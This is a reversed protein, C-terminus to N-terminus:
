VSVGIKLERYVNQRSISVLWNIEAHRQSANVATGKSTRLGKILRRPQSSKSNNSPFTRKAARLLDFQEQPLIITCFSSSTGCYIYFHSVQAVCKKHKQIYQDCFSKGFFPSPFLVFFVTGLLFDSLIIDAFYTFVFDFNLFGTWM